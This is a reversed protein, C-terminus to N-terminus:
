EVKTGPPLHGLILKQFSVMKLDQSVKLRKKKNQKKIYILISWAINM